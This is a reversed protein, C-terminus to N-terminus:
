GLFLPGARRRFHRRSRGHSIVAHEARPGHSPLAFRVERQSMEDLRSALLLIVGPSHHDIEKGPRSQAVSSDNELPTTTPFAVNCGLYSRTLSYEDPRRM